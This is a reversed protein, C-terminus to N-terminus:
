RKEAGDEVARWVRLLNEGLVKRIDGDALGARQLSAILNPYDAANRLGNPLEGGVGDFDSGIGVHDAGILKVAYMIQDTVAQIDTEPVPHAADWAASWAAEDEVPKGAARAEANRAQLAARERFKAQMDAAAKPNVFGTGFTIQVLGGKAAIARAVEDSANREFDPTFHRMGSHTALVPVRSLEVAQLAAADSLHSVDVMIGLRNMEAVVERGFPSLGNWRREVGYSSDAIRNAASHALTIYRVGREHFFALRGLDDAIPAGNEMGLPLLVRGPQRLREIDRPSTLVAFKDPARAALAWVADIQQNAAHWATGQEDQRPSTYISMFAVDLGGTRAKPWDFERDTDATLDRWGGMMEGPADIHTDVILADQALARAADTAQAHATGAIALALAATILRRSIPM